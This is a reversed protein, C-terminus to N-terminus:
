ECVVIFPSPSPDYGVIRGLIDPRMGLTRAVSGAPFFKDAVAAAIGHGFAPEQPLKPLRVLALEEEHGSAGSSRPAGLAPVFCAHGCCLFRGRSCARALLRPRERPLPPRTRPQELHGAARAGRSCKQGSFVDIFMAVPPLLLPPPPPSMFLCISCHVYIDGFLHFGSAKIRQGTRLDKRMGQMPAVSLRVTVPGIDM